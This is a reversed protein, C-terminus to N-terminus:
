YKRQTCYINKSCKAYIKDEIGTKEQISCYPSTDAAPITEMSDVADKIFGSPAHIHNKAQPSSTGLLTQLYSM